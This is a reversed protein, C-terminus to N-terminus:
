MRHEANWAGANGPSDFSEVTAPGSTMRTTFPRPAATRVDSGRLPRIVSGPRIRGEASDDGPHLAHERRLQGGGWTGACRFETNGVFM